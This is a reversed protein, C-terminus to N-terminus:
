MCAKNKQILTAFNLKSYQGEEFGILSMMKQGSLKYGNM